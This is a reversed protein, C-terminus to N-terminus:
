HAKPPAGGTGCCGLLGHSGQRIAHFWHISLRHTNRHSPTLDRRCTDTSYYNGYHNPPLREKIRIHDWDEKSFGLVRDARGSVNKRARWWEQLRVSPNEEPYILSLVNEIQRTLMFLTCGPAGVRNDKEACRKYNLLAAAQTMLLHTTFAGEESCGETTYKTNWWRLLELGVGRAQCMNIREEIAIGNQDYDSVDELPDGRASTYSRFDLVNGFIVLFCFAFLDLAGLLTGPVPM